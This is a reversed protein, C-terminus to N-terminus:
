DQRLGAIHAGIHKVLAQAYDEERTHLLDYIRDRYCYREGDKTLLLGGYAIHLLQRSDPEDLLRPLAASVRTYVDRFKAPDATVHYYRRAEPFFGVAFTYLERFFAADARSLVRLAELWSTGATKVHVRGKTHRGIVPYLSLKDSGSHISLRHGFHDAIRAHIIFQREFEDPDGIYDIGKQFEGVFRPAISAAAVGLRALEAAAFYHAAPTTPASTEDISVEFDIRGARPAILTSYVEASYLLAPGYTAAIRRFDDATFVVAGGTFAFSKGLYAAEVADRYAAPLAAYADDAQAPTWNEAGAPIHDSCDLTIMSFGLDLAAAVDAAKKLHDADAGYGDTYGEALAGWAAAALVDQYRRGTLTLERISQQALVPRVGPPRVARIHGPAALGLRDGLGLSLGTRGFPVPVLFPLYERLVFAADGALPVLKASEGASAGDLAAFLPSKDEAVLLLRRDAGAGVVALLCGAARFAARPKISGPAHAELLGPDVPSWAPNM